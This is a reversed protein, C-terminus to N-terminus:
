AGTPEVDDSSDALSQGGQSLISANLRALVGRWILRRDNMRALIARADNQERLMISRMESRYVELAMLSNSPSAAARDFAVIDAYYIPM